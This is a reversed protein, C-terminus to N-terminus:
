LIKLKAINRGSEKAEYLARDAVAIITCPDQQNKPVLSTVGLSITIYKSPSSQAHAIKLDEVSIRITEAIYVAGNADTNPLIVAFEEGGYRALLDAPRRVSLSMTKAVQRLCDDGALHGYADNYLKFSDVDCLILSLHQQERAMRRWESNLCADFHRRNAILTLGDLTALRELELNAQVLATEVKKRQILTGLQTAVANVLDLLRQNPQSASRKFFVLVALVKDNLVIPVALSTKLGLSLAIENRLFLQSSEAAVNEIWEPQKSLWVRGPLGMNPTFTINESQYRFAELNKDSSYWASSHELVTYNENPVWAEAVDWSITQCLQRLTVELAGHLDDAESISRTTTLLLYTEEQARQREKIEQELRVNQEKLQNQLKQITLQNEIRALVEKIEFPKTIYDKGGVAFAEVKDLVNDLASIFIVPISSTEKNEKLHKCVMYGSMGPMNIDLLILDPPSILVATLAAQGSIAKRVKYGQETLMTSLLRLNDPKDDVVLIDGKHTLVQHRKM